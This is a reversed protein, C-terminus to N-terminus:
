PGSPIRLSTVARYSTAPKMLRSRSAIGSQDRNLRAPPPRTHQAAASSRRSRPKRSISLTSAEAPLKIGHARRPAGRRGPLGRELLSRGCASRGEGRACELHAPFCLGCSRAADRRGRVHNPFGPQHHHLFVEGARRRIGACRRCGARLVNLRLRDQPLARGCRADLDRNTGSSGCTSPHRAVASGSSRRRRPFRLLKAAHRVM